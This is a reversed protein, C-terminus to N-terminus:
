VFIDLKSSGGLTTAILGRVNHGNLDIEPELDGTALTLNIIEKGVTPTGDAQSFECLVINNTNAGGIVRIKNIRYQMTSYAVGGNKADDSATYSSGANVTDIRIPNTAFTNAM